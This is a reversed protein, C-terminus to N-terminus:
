KSSSIHTTSMFTSEWQWSFLTIWLWRCRRCVKNRLYVLVLHNESGATVLDYIVSGTFDECPLLLASCVGGDHIRSIVSLQIRQSCISSM